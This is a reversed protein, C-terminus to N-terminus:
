VLWALAPARHPKSLSEQLLYTLKSNRFPVHNSKSKISAIVDGLASLSKNIAQNTTMATVPAIKYPASLGFPRM